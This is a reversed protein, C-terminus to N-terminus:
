KLRRIHIEQHIAIGNPQFMDKLLRRALDPYCTVFIAAGGLKTSQHVADNVTKHKLPFTDMEVIAAEIKGEKLQAALATAVLTKGVGTEGYILTIM